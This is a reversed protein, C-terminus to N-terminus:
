EGGGQEAIYAECEMVHAELNSDYNKSVLNSVDEGCWPCETDM